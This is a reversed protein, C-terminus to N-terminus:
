WYRSSPYNPQNQVIPQSTIGGDYDEHLQIPSQIDLRRAVGSDIKELMALQDPDMKSKVEDIAMEVGELRMQLQQWIPSEPEHNQILSYLSTRTNKLEDYTLLRMDYTDKLAEAGTNEIKADLRENSMKWARLKAEIEQELHPPIERLIFTLERQTSSYAAQIESKEEKTVAQNYHSLLSNRRQLLMDLDEHFQERFADSSM